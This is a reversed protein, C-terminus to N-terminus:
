GRILLGPQFEVEVNKHYHGVLFISAVISFPDEQAQKRNCGIYDWMKEVPLFCTQPM